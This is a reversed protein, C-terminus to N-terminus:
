LPSLWHDDNRALLIFAEDDPVIDGHGYDLDTLVLNAEPDLAWLFHRKVSFFHEVRNVALFRCARRPRISYWRRSSLGSSSSARATPSSGCRPPTPGCRSQGASGPPRCRIPTRTRRCGTRRPHGSIMSSRKMAPPVGVLRDDRDGIKGGERWAAYVGCPPTWGHSGLCAAARGVRRVTAAQPPLTAVPRTAARPRPQRHRGDRESSSRNCKRGCGAM